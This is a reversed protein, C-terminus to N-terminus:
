LTIHLTKEKELKRQQDIFYVNVLLNGSIPRKVQADLQVSFIQFNSANIDCM